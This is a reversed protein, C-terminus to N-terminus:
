EAHVMGSELASQLSGFAHSLTQRLIDGKLL